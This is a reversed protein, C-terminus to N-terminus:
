YPKLGLVHCLESCRHTKFFSAIGEERKNTKSGLGSSASHIAPDTLSFGDTANWVGQLDCVLQKGGSVSWTFHSFCQPIDGTRVDHFGTVPDIDLRAELSDMKSNPMVDGGNNNWKMWRGELEPEVFLWATHDGKRNYVSDKVKYLFSPVFWVNWRDQLEPAQDQLIPSVRSNFKDALIAVETQMKCAARHFKDSGYDEVSAAEKAVLRPGVPMGHSDAETFRYAFREAGQGFPIQECAAATAQPTMPAEVWKGGKYIQKNLLQMHDHPEKPYIHWEAGNLEQLISLGEKGGKVVAVDRRAGTQGAISTRMTTLTRSFSSFVSTLKDASLGLKQFSSGPLVMAMSELVDYSDAPPGFAVTNFRVRDRGFRDGIDQIAKLCDAKVKKQVNARCNVGNQLGYECRRLPPKRLIFRPSDVESWVPVGHICETFKHDSPAGDSLFVVLLQADTHIDAHLHEETMALAELYNGHHSATGFSLREFRELLEENIEARNILLRAQTSMVILSVVAKGGEGTRTLNLQPLVFEKKLCQFVAHTRSNYGPVDDKRMSGSQDVVLVTHSVFSSPGGSAALGFPVEPEKEDLRWSTIEHRSSEDTVYAVGAHIYKWRRSGDRGPNAPLRRGNKVAAQLERRHINREERRKRGHEHSILTVLSTDRQGGEEEEVGEEVEEVGEEVEELVM